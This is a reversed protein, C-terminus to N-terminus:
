KMQKEITRLERQLENLFDVRRLERELPREGEILRHHLLDGFVICQDLLSTRIHCSGLQNTILEDKKKISVCILSDFAEISINFFCSSTIEKEKEEGM